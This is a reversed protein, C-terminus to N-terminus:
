PQWVLDFRELVVEFSEDFTLGLAACRQGFYDVHGERWYTLSGDGEGETAAFEEDVEAFRRVEVGTTRLICRPTGASDRAVIYGGVEPMQELGHEIDGLLGATARKRGVLVLALLEDQMAPDEGFEVLDHRSAPDVGSLACYRQWFAESAERKTQDDVM